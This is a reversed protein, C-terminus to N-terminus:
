AGRSSTAPASAPSWTIWSRVFVRLAALDAAVAPAESLAFVLTRGHFVVFQM